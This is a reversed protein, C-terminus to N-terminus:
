VSTSTSPLRNFWFLEPARALPKPSTSVLKMGGIAAMSRMSTTRPGMDVRYPDSAIPPTILMM